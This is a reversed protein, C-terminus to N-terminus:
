QLRFLNCPLKLHQFIKLQVLANFNERISLEGQNSFSANASGSLYSDVVISGYSNIVGNNELSDSCILQSNGLVKIEASSDVNIVDDDSYLLVDGSLTVETGVITLQSFSFIYLSLFLVTICISKKSM